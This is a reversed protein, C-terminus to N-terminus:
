VRPFHFLLFRNSQDVAYFSDSDMLSFVQTCNAAVTAAHQQPLRNACCDASSTPLINSADPAVTGLATTSALLSAVPTLRCTGVFATPSYRRAGSTGPVYSM